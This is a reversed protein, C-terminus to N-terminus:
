GAPNTHSGQRTGPGFSRQLVDYTPLTWDQVEPEPMKGFIKELILKMPTLLLIIPEAVGYHLVPILAELAKMGDVVLPLIERLIKIKEDEFKQRLVSEENIFTALDPGIERSRRMDNLTNTVDAMAEAVSVSPSFAAYRDAIEDAARMLTGLSEAAGGAASGLIGIPGLITGLKDSVESTTQGIAQVFEAPDAKASTFRAAAQGIGAALDHAGEQVEKFARVAAQVVFAIAPAAAAMGAMGGGAAAPEAEPLAHEAPLAAGGLNLPKEPATPIELSPKAGFPGTPQAGAAPAEARRAGFPGVPEQSARHRKELENLEAQQQANLSTAGSLVRRRYENEATFPAPTATPPIAPGPPSFRMKARMEARRAEDPARGIDPKGPLASPRDRVARAAGASAQQMDRIAKAADLAAGALPGFIGGLTGRFKHAIDILTNLLSEPRRAPRGAPEPRTQRPQQERAPQTPRAGAPSEPSVGGAGELLVRLVAEDGAM